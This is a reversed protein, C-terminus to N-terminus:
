SCCCRRSCSSSRSSCRCSPRSCAALLRDLRGHVRRRAGHSRRQARDAAAGPPAAQQRPEDDGVGAAGLAPLARGGRGDGVARDAAPRDRRRRAHEAAGGDRPARFRTTAGKPLEAVLLLPGNFGAGFGQALLDFAQRSSTNSPDNGADSTDLRLAFVPTLLVVMVVLSALALPWPRAQM